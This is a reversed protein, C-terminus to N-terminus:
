NAQQERRGQDDHNNNAMGFDALLLLLLRCVSPGLWQHASSPLRLVLLEGMWCCHCHRKLRLEVLGFLKM